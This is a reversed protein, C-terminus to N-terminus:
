KTAVCVSLMVAESDHEADVAPQLLYGFSKSHFLCVGGFFCAPQLLKLEKHIVRDCM